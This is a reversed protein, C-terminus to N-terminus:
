KQKPDILSTEPVAIRHQGHRKLVRFGATNRGVSVLSVEPRRSTAFRNVRALIFVHDGSPVRTEITVELAATANALVPVDVTQSDTLSTGAEKLKDLDRGSSIGFMLTEDLLSPGPVSLTAEEADMALGHSFNIDQVAFGIM